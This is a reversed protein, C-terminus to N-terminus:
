DPTPREVSDIVVVDTMEKRREFKLGLQQEFAAVLPVGVSPESVGASRQSVYDLDIDFTGSLGTRDIVTGGLDSRVGSAIILTSLTTGGARLQALGDNGFIRLGCVPRQVQGRPTPPSEVRNGECDVQSPRLGAGLQGEKALVMAYFDLARQETHVKLKFRDALLSQLMILIQERPTDGAAKANIDFRATNIWPPGGILQDARLDYAVRLILALPAGQVIWRGGPLFEGFNQLSAGPASPKISAVEFAPAAQQAALTAPLLSLVFVALRNM